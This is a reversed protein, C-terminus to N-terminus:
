RGDPVWAAIAACLADPPLASDLELVPCTLTSLWHQHQFLSRGTFTPDDYGAAWDMFALHSDHMAGGHRIARGYRASERAQLRGMRTRPDLVLLVVAQFRPVVPAGWGILSGSLVWQARPLFMAQMLAIREAVPRKHMFPPDTPMWYYDDTDHVPVAWLAALHRGLTTVGSGSAGTIHIRCPDM